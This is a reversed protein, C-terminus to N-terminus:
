QFLSTIPKENSFALIEPLFLLNYLIQKMKREDVVVSAVAARAASPVNVVLTAVLAVLM